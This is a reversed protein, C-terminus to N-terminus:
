RRRTRPRFCLCVLLRAVGGRRRDRGLILEESDGRSFDCEPWYRFRATLRSVCCFSFLMGANRQHRAGFRIEFNQISRRAYLPFSAFLTRWLNKSPRAPTSARWRFPARAQGHTHTFYSFWNVRVKLWYSFFSRSQSFFTQRPRCLGRPLPNKKLNKWVQFGTPSQVTFLHFLWRSSGCM